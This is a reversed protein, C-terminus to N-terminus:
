LDRHVIYKISGASQRTEHERMDCYMMARGHQRYGQIDRVLRGLWRVTADWYV